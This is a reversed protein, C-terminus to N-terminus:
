VTEMTTLVVEYEAQNYKPDERAYKCECKVTYEVIKKSDRIFLTSAEVEKAFLGGGRWVLRELDELMAQETEYECCNLQTDKIYSTVPNKVWISIIKIM